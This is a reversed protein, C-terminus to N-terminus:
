DRAEIVRKLLEEKTQDYRGAVIRDWDERFHALMLERIRGKFEADQLFDDIVQQFAKSLGQSEGEAGNYLLSEEPHVIAYALAHFTMVYPLAVQLTKAVADVAEAEMEGWDM